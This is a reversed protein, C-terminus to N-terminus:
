IHAGRQEEHRAAFCRETDNIRSIRRGIRSDLAYPHEGLVGVRWDDIRRSEGRVALVRTRHPQEIKEARRRSLRNELFLAEGNEHGASACLRAKNAWKCCRAAGAHTISPSLFSQPAWGWM